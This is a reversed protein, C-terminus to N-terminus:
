YESIIYKLGFIIVFENNKKFFFDNKYFLWCNEGIFYFVMSKCFFSLNLRFSGGYILLVDWIFIDGKNILVFVKRVRRKFIEVKMMLIWCGGLENM